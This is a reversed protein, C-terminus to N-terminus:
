SLLFIMMFIYRDCVIKSHLRNEIYKPVVVFYIWM